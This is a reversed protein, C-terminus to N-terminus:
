AQLWLIMIRPIVLELENGQSQLEHWEWARLEVQIAIAAAGIKVYASVQLAGHSVHILRCRHVILDSSAMTSGAPCLRLHHARLGLWHVPASGIPPAAEVVLDWAEALCRGSDLWHIPSLNTCGTLRAVALLQPQAFLDRTPGQRLLRGGAIILLEDSLRHAEDIDHTVLVIPTGTSRQLTEIWQQLRRRRFSDQANLPEDLLLLEPQVALARALAM